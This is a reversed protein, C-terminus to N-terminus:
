FKLSKRKKQLNGVLISIRVSCYRLNIITTTIYFIYINGSSLAIVKVSSSSATFKLNECFDNKRLKSTLMSSAFFDILRNQTISFRRWQNKINSEILIGFSVVLIMDKFFIDNIYRSVNLLKHSFNWVKQVKILSIQKCANFLYIVVLLASPKSEGYIAQWLSHCAAECRM